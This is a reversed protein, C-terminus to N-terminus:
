EDCEDETEVAFSLLPEKLDIILHLRDPDIIVSVMDDYDEESADLDPATLPEIVSPVDRSIRALTRKVSESTSMLLVKGNAWDRLFIKRNGFKIETTNNM